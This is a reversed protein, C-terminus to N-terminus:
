SFWLQWISIFFQRCIRKLIYGFEVFIRWVEQFQQMKALVNIKESSILRFNKWRESHIKRLFRIPKGCKAFIELYDTEVNQM